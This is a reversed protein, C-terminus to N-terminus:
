RQSEQFFMDIQYTDPDAYRVARVYNSNSKYGSGVLVKGDKFSINLAYNDSDVDIVNTTSSWFNFPMTRPFITTNIAPEYASYDVTSQLEYVNPLRWDSYGALDLDECYTLAEEWTMVDAEAQQWM